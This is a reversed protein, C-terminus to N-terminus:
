TPKDPRYSATPVITSCVILITVGVNVVVVVVLV